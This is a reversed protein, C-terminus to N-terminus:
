CIFVLLVIRVKLELREIEVKVKQRRRRRRRRRFMEWSEWGVVFVVFIGLDAEKSTIPVQKAKEWGMVVMWDRRPGFSM